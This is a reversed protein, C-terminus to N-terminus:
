VYTLGPLADAANLARWGCAPCVAEYKPMAEACRGCRGRRYCDSCETPMRGPEPKSGGIGGCTRCYHPFKATYEATM